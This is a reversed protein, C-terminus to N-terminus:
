RVDAAALEVPAAVGYRSAFISSLAPADVKTVADAITKKICADKYLMYAFNNNYTRSCVNVAARHIRGYLAAAGQSSSIDLGAFKVIVQPPTTGEDASSVPASSLALASLLAGAVLSRLPLSAITNM